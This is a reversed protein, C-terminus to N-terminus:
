KPENSFEAECFWLIKLPCWNKWLSMKLLKAKNTGIMVFSYYKLIRQASQYIRNIFLQFSILTTKNQWLVKNIITWAASVTGWIWPPCGSNVLKKWHMRGEFLTKYYNPSCNWLRMRCKHIIMAKKIWYSVKKLSWSKRKTRKKPM